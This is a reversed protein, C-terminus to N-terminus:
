ALAQLESRLRGGSAGPLKEELAAHTSEWIPLAAASQHIQMPGHFPALLRPRKRFPNTERRAQRFEAVAVHLHHEGLRFMGYGFAEGPQTEDVPRGSFSIASRCFRVRSPTAPCSFRM